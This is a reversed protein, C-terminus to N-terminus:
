NINMKNSPKMNKPFVESVVVIDPSVIDLLIELEGMKNLLCDANTYYFKLSETREVTDELVFSYTDSISSNLESFKLRSSDFESNVSSFSNDDVGSSNFKSNMSSLSSDVYLCTSQDSISENSSFLRVGGVILPRDM